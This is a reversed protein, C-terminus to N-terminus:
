EARVSRVPDNAFTWEHLYSVFSYNVVSAFPLHHVLDDSIAIPVQCCMLLVRSCAGLLSDAM